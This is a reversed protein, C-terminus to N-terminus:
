LVKKLAQREHNQYSRFLRNVLQRDFSRYQGLVLVKLANIEDVIYPQFQSFNTEKTQRLEELKERQLEIAKIRIKDLSEVADKYRFNALILKNAANDLSDSIQDQRSKLGTKVSDAFAFILIGILLLINILNTELIDTNIGFGSESM